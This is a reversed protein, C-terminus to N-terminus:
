TGASEMVLPHDILINLHSFIFDHIANGYHNGPENRFVSKDKLFVDKDDPPKDEFSQNFDKSSAM